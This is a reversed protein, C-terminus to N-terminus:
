NLFKVIPDIKDPFFLHPTHGCDAYEIFGGALGPGRSRMMAPEDAPLVDSAAGRLLMITAKIKDWMAWMDMDGIKQARLCSILLFSARRQICSLSLVSADQFPLNIQQDYHPKVIHEGSEKAVTVASHRM